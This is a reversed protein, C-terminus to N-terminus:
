GLNNQIFPILGLHRARKIAQTLLRQNKASTGSIRSPVIKGRESIYKRLLNVNKYDINEKLLPDSKKRFIAARVAM